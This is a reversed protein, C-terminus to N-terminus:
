ASIEDGAKDLTLKVYVESKKWAVLVVLLLNERNKLPLSITTAPFTAVSILSSFSGQWDKHTLPLKKGGTLEVDNDGM